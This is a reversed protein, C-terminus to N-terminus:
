LFRTRLKAIWHDAWLQLGSRGQLRGPPIHSPSESKPMTHGIMEDSPGQGTHDEGCTLCLGFRLHNATRVTTLYGGLLPSGHAAILNLMAEVNRTNDKDATTLWERVHADDITRLAREAMNAQMASRFPEPVDDQNFFMM